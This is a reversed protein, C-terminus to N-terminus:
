IKLIEDELFSTLFKRLHESGKKTLHIKDRELDDKTLTYFFECFIVDEESQDGYMENFLNFRPHLYVAIIKAEHKRILHHAKTLSDVVDQPLTGHGLDNIGFCLVVIDYCDEELLISLPEGIDSALKGPCSEVHYNRNKFELGSFLSDGFFLVKSM